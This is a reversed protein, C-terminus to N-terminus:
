FQSFYSTIRPMGRGARGFRSVNRWPLKGSASKSAVSLRM